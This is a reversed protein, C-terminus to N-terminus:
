FISSTPVTYPLPDMISYNSSHPSVQPSCLPYLPEIVAIDVQFVYRQTDARNLNFLNLASAAADITHTTSHPGVHTMYANPVQCAKTVCSM